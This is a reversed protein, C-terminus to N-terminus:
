MRITHDTEEIQIEKNNDLTKNNFIKLIDKAAEMQNKIRNERFFKIFLSELHLRQEDSYNNYQKDYYYDKIQNLTLKFLSRVTDDINEKDKVFELYDKQQKNLLMQNYEKTAKILNDLGIAKILSDTNYINNKSGNLWGPEFPDFEKGIFEKYEPFKEKLFSYYRDVDIFIGNNIDDLNSTFHGNTGGHSQGHLLHHKTALEKISRNLINKIEDDYQAYTFGITSPLVGLESLLMDIALYEEGVYLIVKKDKISDKFKDNKILEKYKDKEILIIADKSIKLGEHSVDLYADSYDISYGYGSSLFNDINDLIVFNRTSAVANYSGTVELPTNVTFHKTSRYAQPTYLLYDEKDSIDINNDIMLEKIAVSLPSAYMELSTDKSSVYWTFDYPFHDDSRILMFKDISQKKKAEDILIKLNHRLKDRNVFSNTDIYNDNTITQMVGEPFSVHPEEKKIVTENQYGIAGKNKKFIDFLGM